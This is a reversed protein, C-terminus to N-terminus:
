PPTARSIAGALGASKVLRGWREHRGYAAAIAEGSPLTGDRAQRALAWQWAKCRLADSETGMRSASVLVDAPPRASPIRTAAAISRQRQPKGAELDDRVASGRVQRTLLENEPPQLVRSCSM